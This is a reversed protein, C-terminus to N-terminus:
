QAFSSTSPQNIPEIEVELELRTSMASPNAESTGFIADETLPKVEGLLQMDASRPKRDRHTSIGM